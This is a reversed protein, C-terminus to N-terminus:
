HARVSVGTQVRYNNQWTGPMKVGLWDFQVARWALSRSIRWDLGGGLQLAFNTDEATNSTNGIRTRLRDKAFGGLAHAFLRVNDGPYGSFQPGFVAVHRTLKYNVPTNGITDNRKGIGFQYEGGFGIWSVPYYFGNAQAGHIRDVPMGDVSMFHYGGGFIFSNAMDDKYAEAMPVVKPVKVPVVPKAKEKGTVANKAPDATVKYKNVAAVQAAQVTSREQLKAVTMSRDANPGKQDQGYGIASCAVCLSVVTLVRRFM